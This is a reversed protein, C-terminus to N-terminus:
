TAAGSRALRLQQSILDAVDRARMAASPLNQVHRRGDRSRQELLYSDRLAQVMVKAAAVADTPEFYLPVEACSQRVFDRDSAFLPLGKALAEIPAASYAELLSPFVAADASAYASSLEPQTLVGLNRCYDRTQQGLARWEADSLTVLFEPTVGLSEMQAGLPGLFDHNKHQYGRAPYILSARDDIRRSTWVETKSINSSVANPIVVVNSEDFGLVDVVRDRMATTEVIVVDARRMLRRKMQALGRTRIGDSRNPYVLTVAAFGVLERRAGRPQYTPGFVRYAVEHSVAAPRYPRLPNPKVDRVELARFPWSSKPRDLEAAVASSVHVDSDALWSPRPDLRALESIASAAVQVGGGVRLNSADILVSM